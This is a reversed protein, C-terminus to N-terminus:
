LVKWIKRLDQMNDVLDYRHKVCLEKEHENLDYGRVFYYDSM